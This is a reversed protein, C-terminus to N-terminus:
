LLCAPVGGRWLVQGKIRRAIEPECLDSASPDATEIRSGAGDGGPWDWRGPAACGRIGEAQGDCGAPLDPEALKIAPRNAVQVWGGARHPLGQKGIRMCLDVAHCGVQPSPDPEGLQQLALESHYLRCRPFHSLNWHWRRETAVGI